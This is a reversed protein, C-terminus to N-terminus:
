KDFTFNKSAAQARVADKVAQDLTDRPGASQKALHEARLKGLKDLEAQIKKREVAKDRLKKELDKGTLGQYEAPLDESKLSAAPAAGSAVQSVADWRASSEAYQAKSKFLSREVAAGTPAAAFAKKDAEEQRVSAAGGTAGLPVYTDNISRGLREIEDDYPTRQVYGNDDQNITMYAGRGRDAGDKWQTEMGERRNGCFITNVVIDQDVAQGVSGRYNVRGQTFPENGAIFITKYTSSRHDWDLNRVADRIVAGCYEEGGNTTLSFLKESLRDLDNTFPLVQRIFDEGISLGSNGYEYLAVEIRPSRGGCRAGAMDNVIRWLQTKAQGILGDMSNSTDLLLAIQVLPRRPDPDVPHAAAPVALALALLLNLFRKM